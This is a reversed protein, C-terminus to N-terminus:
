NAELVSPVGRPRASIKHQSYRGLFKSLEILITMYAAPVVGYRYGIVTQKPDGDVMRLVPPTSPGNSANTGNAPKARGDAM